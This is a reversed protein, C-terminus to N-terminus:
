VVAEAAVAAHVPNNAVANYKARATVGKPSTVARKALAKLQALQVKASGRRRAGGGVRGAGGERELPASRKKQKVLTERAVCMMWVAGLAGIGCAVWAAAALGGHEAVVGVALPGLLSGCDSFTRYLGLFQSRIEPPALDSGITMLLGSSIGNGAGCLAGVAMLSAEGDTSPLLAFSLAQIGLAPVAAAKRGYRDMIWGAAPFLAMDAFYSAAVVHGVGANGLGLGVLAQLPHLVNRADRVAMLCFVFFGFTCLDRWHV